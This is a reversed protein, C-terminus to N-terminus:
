EEQYLQEISERVAKYKKAPVPIRSGDAMTIEYRKIISIHQSNIVYSRHVPLFREGVMKQFEHISFHTEIEDGDMTYLLCYRGNAAAFVIEALELFRTGKDQDTVIVRRKDQMNKMHNKLYRGAMKGSIDPFREGETLFLEGMPNSVHIQKIWM